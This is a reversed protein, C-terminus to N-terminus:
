RFPTDPETTPPQTKDISQTTGGKGSRDSPPAPPRACAPSHAPPVEEYAKEVFSQHGSRHQSDSTHPPPYQQRNAVHILSIHATHTSQSVKTNSRKKSPAFGYKTDQYATPNTTPGRVRPDCVISVTYINNNM